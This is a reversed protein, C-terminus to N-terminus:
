YKPCLSPSLMQATNGFKFSFNQQLTKLQLLNLYRKKYQEHIAPGQTKPLGQDVFFYLILFYLVWSCFALIKSLLAETSSTPRVAHLITATGVDRL